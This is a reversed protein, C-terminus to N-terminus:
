PNYTCGANTRHVTCDWESKAECAAIADNIADQRRDAADDGLEYQDSVAAGWHQAANQSEAYAFCFQQRRTARFVISCSGTCRDLVAQEAEEATLRIAWSVGHLSGDNCTSRALAVSVLDGFGGNIAGGNNRVISCGDENSGDEENGGDDGDDNTPPPQTRVANALCSMTNSDDYQAALHVTVRERQRMAASLLHLANTQHTWYADGTLDPHNVGVYDSDGGCKERTSPDLRIRLPQLGNTHISVVRGSHWGPDEAFSSPSAFLFFLGLLVSLPAKMAKM